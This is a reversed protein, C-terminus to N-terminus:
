GCRSRCGPTGASAPQAPAPDHAARPQSSRRVERSAGPAKPLRYTPAISGLGAYTFVDGYVDRLVVYKGLKRSSGLQVIRGDQVAVVAANPASMLDVLQPAQASLGAQGHSRRPSRPRPLALLRADGARLRRGRCEDLKAAPGAPVTAASSGPVAASPVAGPEIRGGDGALRERQRDCELIPRCAAASGLGGAQRYGAPSRRDPRHADRDRGEPYTSILKARLLVSDAYEESHNYALIAGRLDSAAGAARLYRAAAFIADM